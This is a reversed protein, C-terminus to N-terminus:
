KFLEIGKEAYNFAAKTEEAVEIASGSGRLKSTKLRHMEHLVTKIIEDEDKFAEKGIHFGNKEFNTLGSFPADDYTITRGNL